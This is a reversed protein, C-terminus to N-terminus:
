KLIGWPATLFILVILGLALFADRLILQKNIKSLLQNAFIDYFAGFITALVLGTALYSFPLWSVALVAEAMIGSLLSAELWTKKSVMDGSETIESQPVTEWALKLGTFCLGLTGALAGIIMWFIASGPFIVAIYNVYLGFFGTFFLFGGLIIFYHNHPKLFFFYLGISLIILIIHSTSWRDPLLLAFFLASLSYLASYLFVYWKQWLYVLLLVLWVWIFFSINRFVIEEALFLLCAFILYKTHIKLKM